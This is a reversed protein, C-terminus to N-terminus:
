FIRLIKGNLLILVFDVVNMIFGIGFFCAVLRVLGAVINGELLRVIAGMIGGIFICIIASIIKNIGFYDNKYSYNSAM